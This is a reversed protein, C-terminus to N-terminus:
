YRVTDSLPDRLFFIPFIMGNYYYDDPLEIHYDYSGCQYTLEEPSVIFCTENIIKDNLLDCM